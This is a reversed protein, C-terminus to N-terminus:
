RNRIWQAIFRNRDRLWIARRDALRRTSRHGHHTLSSLLNAAVTVCGPGHTRMLRAQLDTDSFYLRLSEDFGGAAQIARMSLGWCWGEVFRRSPLRQLVGEPVASEVRWRVGSVCHAGSRLPGILSEIWAARTIVDNNLLVAFPTSVCRLGANWAATVGRHDQEILMADPIGGRLTSRDPSPSGDDVIIVPWTPLEHRRLTRVCELTLEAQGHQPIIITADPHQPGAIPLAPVTM